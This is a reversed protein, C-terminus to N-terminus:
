RRCRPICASPRTSSEMSSHSSCSSTGLRTLSRILKVSSRESLKRYSRIDACSSLAGSFHDIPGSVYRTAKTASVAMTVVRKILTLILSSCLREFMGSTTEYGAFMLVRMQFNCFNLFQSHQAHWFFCVVSNVEDETM